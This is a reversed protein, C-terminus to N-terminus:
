DRGGGLTKSAVDVLTLIALKIAEPLDDWAAVVRALAPDIPASPEASEPRPVLVPVGANEDNALEQDTLDKRCVADSSM